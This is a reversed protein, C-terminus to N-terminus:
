FHLSGASCTAAANLQYPLLLLLSCLTACFFRSRPFNPPPANCPAYITMVGELAVMYITEVGSKRTRMMVAFQWHWDQQAPNRPSARCYMHRSVESALARTTSQLQSTDEKM